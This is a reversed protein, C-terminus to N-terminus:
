STSFAFGDASVGKQFHSLATLSDSRSPSALTMAVGQGSQDTRPAFRPETTPQEDLIDPWGYWAGNAVAFLDDGDSEIPRSGRVDAGNNSVMLSGKLASDDPAFGIGFPNRFGWAVLELGTGDTNARLVSSTCPVQGKV